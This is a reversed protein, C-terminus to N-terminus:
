LGTIQSQLTKRYLELNMVGMNRNCTKCVPMLNDIDTSGGLIYAKIHGCEMHNIDLTEQCCYCKGIINGENVKDWVKRRLQQTIMPRKKESPFQITYFYANLATKTLPSVELLANLAIDLWEFNRFIGVWAATGGKSKALITRYEKEMFKSNALQQRIYENLVDTVMGLQEATTNSRMIRDGYSHNYLRDELKTLSINPMHPRESKSTYNSFNNQLYQLYPKIIKWEPTQILPHIPLSKSVRVFLQELDEKTKLNYELVHIKLTDISPFLERIHKFAAIRHQGDIIYYNQQPEWLAKGITLSQLMTLQNHVRLDYVQSDVLEQVHEKDVIRQIEPTLLMDVLEKIIYERVNMYVM